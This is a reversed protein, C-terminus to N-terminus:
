AILHDLLASMKAKAEPTFTRRVYEQGLLQGVSQDAARVCRKWREQQKQQGSLIKGNFNFDEDAFSRSLTPAAEDIVHFRLYAKWDDLSVEDLAKNLAQLYKPQSVNVTQEHVGLTNLYSPWEIAPALTAIEAVSMPHYRAEPNRLETRPLTGSVLRTELALIRQADADARAQDEGALVLMKSVHEVYQQRYTKFRDDDRLYYDRDPLGVNAAGISAVIQKSNKFDNQAGVGFLTSQGRAQLRQVEAILGARNSIADIRDLDPKIPQVGAQEIGTENMCAGYFDGIKRSASGPAASTDHMSEELIKHLTERNREALEEFRGYRAYEPPLPHADRWKGVAFRYFDDCPVVSRDLAAVDYGADGLYARAPAAAPSQTTPAAAPQPSQSCATALLLSLAAGAPLTFARRM